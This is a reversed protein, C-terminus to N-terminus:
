PNGFLADILNKIKNAFLKSIEPLLSRFVIGMMLALFMAQWFHASIDSLYMEILSMSLIGSTIALLGVEKWEYEWTPAEKTSMKRDIIVDTLLVGLANVIIIILFFLMQLGIGFGQFIIGIDDFPLTPAM